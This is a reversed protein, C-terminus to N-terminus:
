LPVYMFVFLQFACWGLLAGPLLDVIYHQKTYLASLAILLPFLLPWYGLGLSSNMFHMASLMAISVHMSPFCNSTKDFRQVLQLMRVSLSNGKINERWSDPTAVPFLMFFVMQMFLLIFYSTAMYNFERMNDTTIVVLIIVPYYLGSYIWVWSPKLSFYRDIKLELSRSKKIPHNQTWFYFQYVGIILFVCLLFYVVYDM